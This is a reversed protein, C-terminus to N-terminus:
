SFSCSLAMVLLLQATSPRRVMGTVQQLIRAQLFSGKCLMLLAM